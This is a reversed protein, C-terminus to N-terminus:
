RQNCTAAHVRNLVCTDIVLSLTDMFYARVATQRASHAFVLTTERPRSPDLRAIHVVRLSQSVLRVGLFVLSVYVFMSLEYM